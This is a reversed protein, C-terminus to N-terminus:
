HEWSGPIEHRRQQEAEQALRKEEEAKMQLQHHEELYVPDKLQKERAECWAWLQHRTEFTKHLLDFYYKDWVGEPPYQQRNKRWYTLATDYQRHLDDLTENGSLKFLNLERKITGLIWHPPQKLHKEHMQQKREYVMRKGLKDGKRKFRSL